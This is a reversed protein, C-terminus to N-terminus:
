TITDCLATDSLRPAGRRPMGASGHAVVERRIVQAQPVLHANKPAVNLFPRVPEGPIQAVGERPGSVRPM